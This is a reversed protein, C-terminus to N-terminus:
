MEHNIEERALEAPLLPVRAVEECLANIQNGSLGHDERGLRPRHQISATGEPPVVVGLRVGVWVGGEVIDAQVELAALGVAVHVGLAVVGAVGLQDAGQAFPELRQGLLYFRLHVRVAEQQPSPTLLSTARRTATLFRMAIITYGMPIETPSTSYPCASLQGDM